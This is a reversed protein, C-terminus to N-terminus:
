YGVTYKDYMIWQPRKGQLFRRLEKSITAKNRVVGAALEAAVIHSAASGVGGYTKGNVIITTGIQLKALVAPDVDNGLVSDKLAALYSSAKASQEKAVCQAAALETTLANIQQLANYEPNREIPKTGKQETHYNIANQQNTVWRLNSVHNNYGNNDIHDVIPLDDPNPIFAQAVVRHATLQGEATSISTYGNRHEHGKYYTVSGDKRKFLKMGDERIFHKSSGSISRVRMGQDEFDLTTNM